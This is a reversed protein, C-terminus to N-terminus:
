RRRCPSPDAPPCSRSHQGHGEPEERRRDVANVLVFKMTSAKAQALGTNTVVVTIACIPAPCRGHRSPRAGHGVDVVLDPQPTVQINGSSTLCNNGEDVEAAVKGSDVCAQLKYQGPTTEPRITISRRVRQVDARVQAAAREARGEPGPPLRRGDLDPLVEDRDSRREVAGINKVTSKVTIEQGQGAARPPTPSRRSSWIPRSSFTSARGRTTCNNGEIAESVDGDGDACAQLDYTGPEHGLLRLAM